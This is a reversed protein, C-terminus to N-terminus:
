PIVEGTITTESPVSERLEECWWDSLLVGNGKPQLTVKIPPLLYQNLNNKETSNDNILYAIRKRFFPM